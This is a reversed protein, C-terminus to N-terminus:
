PARVIPQTRAARDPTHRIWSKWEGVDRPSLAIFGGSDAAFTPSAWGRPGAGCVLDVADGPALAGDSICIEACHHWPNLDSRPIYAFCLQADANTELRVHGEAQPDDTQLPGWDFPWRWALRLAGDTPLGGAGIAFRFRLTVFTGATIAQVPDCGVRGHLRGRETASLHPLHVVQDKGPEGNKLIM